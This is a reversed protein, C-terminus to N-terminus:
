MPVRLEFTSGKGVESEVRLTGGHAEVIARALKLGIGMGEYRRTLSADRHHFPEFIRVADQASMGIGQDRLTVACWNQDRRVEIAIMGGDRSFKVANSILHDLVHVLLEADVEVRRQFELNLEVRLQKADLEASYKQLVRRLLPYLQVPERALRLRGAEIQDFLALDDLRAKLLLAQETVMDLDQIALSQWQEQWLRLYALVVTLPGGLGQLLVRVLRQNLESLRAVEARATELESEAPTMILFTDWDAPRADPNNHLMSGTHVM